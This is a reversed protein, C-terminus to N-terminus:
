LSLPHFPCTSGLLSMGGFADELTQHRARKAPHEIVLENFPSETRKRKVRLVSEPQQVPPPEAINGLRVAFKRNTMCLLSHSGDAIILLYCSSKGM